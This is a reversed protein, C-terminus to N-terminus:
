AKGGRLVAFRARRSEPTRSLADARVRAERRTLFGTEVTVYELRETDRISRSTEIKFTGREGSRIYFYDGFNVPSHGRHGIM